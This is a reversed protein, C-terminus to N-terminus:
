YVSCKKCLLIRDGSPPCIRCSLDLCVNTGAANSSRFLGAWDSVLTAHHTSYLHLMSHCSFAELNWVNILSTMGVGGFSLNELGAHTLSLRMRVQTPRNRKLVCLHPKAKVAAQSHPAYSFVVSCTVVYQRM